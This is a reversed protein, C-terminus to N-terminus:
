LIFESLLMVLMGILFWLILMKKNKYKISEPILEYIAIYLMIGATVAFIFSFFYDNVLKSLFLWAIFAGLIESFGAIFTYFFAKIKNKSGYYIPIFISIGEPINHLAISCALPLGLKIDKTTTLFTIIGEPINHIILAIMSIIGVKYLNNSDEVLFNDIFHTFVIGFLIFIIGIIISPIFNYFNMLYNISNPILDFLSIFIMIGASFILSYSILKERGKSSFLIAFIGLLTSFGAIGTILFSFFLNNM